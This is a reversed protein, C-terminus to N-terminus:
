QLGVLILVEGRGSDLSTMAKGLIAGNARARDDARMAHGPTESTVLLDGPLIAGYDADAKVYVRGTLAIPSGRDLRGEQRATIGPRIGHAGSVVGAVKTDYPFASPKLRGPNNEDIVMVTGPEPPLGETEFPEALDAGGRITLTAVSVDHSFWAGGSANVSFSNTKASSFDTSIESNWVFSNAHIAKARTGAAFSRNTAMNQFGGPVTGYMGLAANQAGGGVAAYYQGTFNQEGGAVVSYDGGASNLYGGAVVASPASASNRWGGAVTAFNTSTTNQEGGGIAAGYGTNTNAYGGAVVANVGGAANLFGGGLFANMGSASNRLGAGVFSNSAALTIANSTGGGISSAAGSSTNANGGLVASYPAGARNNAGGAVAGYNGAAANGSGGGVFSWFATASNAFGGVVAALGGPVSNSRGGSIVASQGDAINGEGGGVASWTASAVNGSGGGVAAFSGNVTNSNGSIVKSATLTGSVNLDGTVNAAVYADAQAARLAYGAAAIRQDPSLQVFPNTGGASFWTRLSVNANSFITSPLAAMNSLATDGLLTSYLGQAVAVPVADSPESTTTTGDNKWYVATGDGNVLAFKFKAANTTLNTGGVTVRGQYNLINPVQAHTSFLAFAIPFVTIRLATAPKM